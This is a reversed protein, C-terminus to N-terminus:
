SAVVWVHRIRVCHTWEIVTWTHLAVTRRWVIQRESSVVRVHSIWRTPISRRCIIWTKCTLKIKLNKLDISKFDVILWRQICILRQNEQWKWRVTNHKGQKCVAFDSKKWRLKAQARPPQTQMSFMSFDNSLNWNEVWIYLYVGTAPPLLLLFMKVISIIDLKARNIQKNLEENRPNFSKSSTFHLFIRFIKEM